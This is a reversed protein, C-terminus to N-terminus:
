GFDGTLIANLSQIIITKNMPQKVLGPKNDDIKDETKNQPEQEHEGLDSAAILACQTSIIM